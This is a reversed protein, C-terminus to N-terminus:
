KKTLKWVSNNDPVDINNASAWGSELYYGKNIKKPNLIVVQKSNEDLSEQYNKLTVDDILAGVLSISGTIKANDLKVRQDTVLAEQRSMKQEQLQIRKNLSPASPKEATPKTQVTKEIKAQEKKIEPDVVLVQWGVIIITSLVIATLVNKTDM